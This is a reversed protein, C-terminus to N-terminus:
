SFLKTLLWTLVTSIATAITAAVCNENWTWRWWWPCALRAGEARGAETLAIFGSARPQSLLDVNGASDPLASATIWGRALLYHAACRLTCPFLRPCLHDLPWPAGTTGDTQRWLDLLLQNCHELRLPPLIPKM